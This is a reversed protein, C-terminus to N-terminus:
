HMMYSCPMQNTQEGLLALSYGIARWIAASVESLSGATCNIMEEISMEKFDITSNMVKHIIAILVLLLSNAYM